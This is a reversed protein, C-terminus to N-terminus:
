EEQAKRIQEKGDNRVVKNQTRKMHRLHKWWEVTKVSGKGKSSSAM